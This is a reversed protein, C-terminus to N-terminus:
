HQRGDFRKKFFDLSEEEVYSIYVYATYHGSFLRISEPEGMKEWLAEGQSYPVVDDFRALIVLVNEANIYPAYNIPDCTVTQKLGDYFEDESLHHEKMYAERKEVIGGEDSYTLIYPINGGPLGLVCASVRHDLSVLLSANIAGMSIGFVGIRSTDIDEQMQVWDVAQMHDFVIQKLFLNVTDMKLNKKFDKQRHIIAAAYGNKAFYRAFKEEITNKGGFIPLVLIIPTKAGGNIDYYDIRIQHPIETINHAAPFEIQKITYGDHSEIVKESYAGSFKPYAFEKRIEDPIPRPGLYGPSAAHHLCCGTMVGGFALVTLLCFAIQVPNIIRM